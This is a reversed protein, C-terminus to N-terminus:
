KAVRYRLHTVGTGAVVEIPELRYPGEGDAFLRIGRGMVVAALDIAIEDLLGAALCQQMAKASGVAVIKDGALEKAKEVADEIGTSVFAFPSGPKVWEKPAKHTMVVTPVGMPPNGQWAGSADFTRRGTLIAGVKGDYRKLYQASAKSVKLPYPSGAFQFDTDGAGM